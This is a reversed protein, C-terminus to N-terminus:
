KQRIIKEIGNKDRISVEIGMASYGAIAASTSSLVCNSGMAKDVPTVKASMASLVVNSGLAKDVTATKVSFNTLLTIM